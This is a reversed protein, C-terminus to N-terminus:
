LQHPFMGMQRQIGGESVKAYSGQRGLSTTPNHPIRLQSGGAGPNGGERSRRNHLPRRRPVVTTCPDGKASRRNHLPRKERSDSMCGQRRCVLSHFQPRQNTSSILDSNFSGSTIKTGVVTTKVLPKAWFNQELSNWVQGVGYSPTRNKPCSESRKQLMDSRSRASDPLHPVAAWPSPVPGHSPTNMFCSYRLLEYEDLTVTQGYSNLGSPLGVVDGLASGSSAAGQRRRDGCGHRGCRLPTVVGNRPEVPEKFFFQHIISHNM